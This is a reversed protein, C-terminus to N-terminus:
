GKYERQDLGKKKYAQGLEFYLTAGTAQPMTDKPELKGKVEAPAGMAKSYEEIDKTVLAGSGII